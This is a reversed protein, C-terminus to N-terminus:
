RVKARTLLRAFIGPAFRKLLVGMTEKGGIYAENDGRAMVPLARRAFEEPALGKETAEDMTGLARGDGTLANVSVGTRIFGPCIITIGVGSGSLEARLSDFFGHLAHKSAAYASRYPTGFKGVLSSITVVRGQRQQLLQPLVAKTLAVTGFYNVEMLRRDVDLTTELALSRQSVGGNNVLVDLRGYRALVQQVKAPLAASDALDLPLVLTEAPACAAAVRRLEAENRASLVLRAGSRAFAQALAEGIGASAGTIWVVQQSFKM